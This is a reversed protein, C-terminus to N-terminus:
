LGVNTRPHYRASMVSVGDNSVREKGLLVDELPSMESM